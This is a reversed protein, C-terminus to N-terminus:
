TLCAKGSATVQIIGVHLFNGTLVDAQKISYLLFGIVSENGSIFLLKKM